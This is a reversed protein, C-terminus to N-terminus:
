AGHLPRMRDLDRPFFIHVVRRLLTYDSFIVRTTSRGVLYKDASGGGLCIINQRAEALMLGPRVLLSSAPRFDVANGVPEPGDPEGHIRGDTM